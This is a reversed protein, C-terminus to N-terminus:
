DCSDTIFSGREDANCALLAGVDTAAETTGCDCIRVLSGCEDVNFALLAWVDTRADAVGWDCSDTIFLGREVAVPAPLAWFGFIRVGASASLLCKARSM